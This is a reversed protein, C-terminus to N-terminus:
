FGDSFAIRTVQGGTGFVQVTLYFQRNGSRIQAGPDSFSNARVDCKGQIMARHEPRDFFPDPQDDGDRKGFRHWNARDQQILSCWGELPQGSSSYADASSLETNYSFMFDEAMVPFAICIAGFTGFALRRM